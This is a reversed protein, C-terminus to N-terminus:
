REGRRLVVVNEENVTDSMNIFRDSIDKLSENHTVIVITKGLEKLTVFLKSIEETTVKDLNGTPEDAIIFESGNALARAIAVRQQEGGSLQNPRSTMRDELGVIKLLEKARKIKENKGIKILHMSVLVNELVNFDPILYFMQFIFGVKIGRYEDQKRRNLEYLSINDYLVRGKDPSLMGGIINLLTTKGSGSPGLILLIEGENIRLNVNNLVKIKKDKVFFSHSLDQLEVKM